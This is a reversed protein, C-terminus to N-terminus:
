PAGKYPLDLNGCKKCQNLNYIVRGSDPKYDDNGRLIHILVSKGAASKGILGMIKGTTLKASVNNLTVRGDFTKTVNEIVLLEVSEQAM